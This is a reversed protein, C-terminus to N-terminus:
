YVVQSQEYAYTLGGIRLLLFTIMGPGTFAVTPSTFIRATNAFTMNANTTRISVIRGNVTGADFSNVTTAVTAACEYYSVDDSLTLVNSSVDTEDLIAAATFLSIAGRSLVPFEQAGNIGQKMGFIGSSSQDDIKLTGTGTWAARPDFTNDLVSMRPDTGNIRIGKVGATGATTIIVNERVTKNYGGAAASSTVDVGIANVAARMSILNGTILTGKAVATDTADVGVSYGGGVFNNIIKTYQGKDQIGIGGDGGECYTNEIISGNGDLLLVGNYTVSCQCDILHTSIAKAIGTGDLHFGTLFGRASLKRLTLLGIDAGVAVKWGAGTRAAGLGAPAVYDSNFAFCREVDALFNTGLECGDGTGRQYIVCDRMISNGAFSVLKVVPTTSTGDFRIWEIVKSGSSSPDTDLIDQMVPADTVSKFITGGIPDSISLAEGTGQGYMRWGKTREDTGTVTGPLILGTVLYIGAPVHLNINADHTADMANQIATTDDTVGDGVAGYDKVNGSAGEIMRNHTKTLAM